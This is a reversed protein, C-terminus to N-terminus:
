HICCWFNLKLVAEGDEGKGVQLYPDGDGLRQIWVSTKVCSGSGITGNDIHRVQWVPGRGKSVIVGTTMTIPFPAYNREPHSTVRQLYDGTVLM